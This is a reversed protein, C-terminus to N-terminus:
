PAADGRGSGFEAQWIRWLYIVDDLPAEASYHEGLCDYVAQSLKKQANADFANRRNRNPKRADEYLAPSLDVFKREAPVNVRCAHLMDLQFHLNWGIVSKATALLAEIERASEDLTGVEDNGFVDAPRIHKPNDAKEYWAEKGVPRFMRDMLVEGDEDMATFGIVEDSEYNKGTAKVTIFVAPHEVEEPDASLQAYGEEQLASLRSSPCIYHPLSMSRIAKRYTSDDDTALFAIDTMHEKIFKVVQNSTPVGMSLSRVVCHGTNDVACTASAFEPGLTGLLSPRAGYRPKREVNASRPLPNVLERTGKQGERFFSDDMQITGRLTPSPISWAAYLVKMRMQWLTERHMRLCGYDDHLSKLTRDMGICNVLDYVVKVWVDWMYNSKELFTGSTTTFRRGCDRCVFRQLGNRTGDKVFRVSGCDPCAQEWGAALLSSQIDDNVIQAVAQRARAGKRNKSATSVVQAYQHKGLKQLQAVLGDLEPDGITHGAM